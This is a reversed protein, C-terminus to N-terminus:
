EHEKDKAIRIHYRYGRFEFFAPYREPDAVRFLEFQDAITKYPDIQSDEPTRKRYITPLRGDQQRPKISNFNSVAFDMLKVEADFLRANIEDFIEHGDLEINEQAWIAGSDIADEAELLTVTISNKGEIIQWIHPSWGRGLPLDSAHIVLTALYRERVQASIVEHCSILFLIDGGSLEIKKRHLAVEHKGQYTLAWRELWPSIPHNPDSCLISIKVGIREVVQYRTRM